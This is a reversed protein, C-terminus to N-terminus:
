LDRYIYNGTKDIIYYGTSSPNLLRVGDLEEDFKIHTHGFLAMDAGAEKARTALVGKSGRVGYKHGHCAFIKIGHWDFLIEEKERSWFDNNGEVKIIKLHPFAAEIDEADRVMDGLHVLHTIEKNEMLVGMVTTTHGHTDSIVMLSMAKIVEFHM